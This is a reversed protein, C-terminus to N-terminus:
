GKYRNFDVDVAYEVKNPTMETDFKQRIKGNYKKQLYTFLVRSLSYGQATGIYEGSM